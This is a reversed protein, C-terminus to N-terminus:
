NAAPGGSDKVGQMFRVAFYGLGLVAIGLVGYLLGPYRESLPKVPPEPPKYGPNAQRGEASVSVANDLTSKALVMSLDYSPAHAQLNGFYLWYDGGAQSPFIINRAIAEVTVSM